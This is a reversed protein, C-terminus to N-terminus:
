KDKWANYYTQTMERRAFKMTGQSPVKSADYDYANHVNTNWANARLPCYVPAWMCYKDISLKMAELIYQKEKDFTTAVQANKVAKLYDDPIILKNFNKGGGIYRQLFTATPNGAGLNLGTILGDWGGGAITLQDYQASQLGELTAEIGITKLFAQYTLVVQAVEPTSLFTFKTKFGDPYGAEAMLQKAKTPNYPYGAISPDYYWVGQPAIQNIAIAENLLVSKVVSSGDIAHSAAQRVKLNAFPSNPNASDFFLPRDPGGNSYRAVIIGEKEFTARSSSAIFRSIDVEGKRLAMESVLSDPIPIYEFGDLYPKGKQWYGDFKKFTTKADRQWSVFQFPGTGVPNNSAWDAGNKNVATPSVMYGIYLTFNYFITRDWDNLNVRITYDDVIDISKIQSTGIQKVALSQDLNWKAAEANFDTGDHFKIGKKLPITITKAIADEKIDAALFPVINGQDDLVFLSEVAPEAHRLSDARVMKPPYGISQGERINALKLVGGYIPSTSKVTPTQVSVSESCGFLTISVFMVLTIGALVMKQLLKKSSM